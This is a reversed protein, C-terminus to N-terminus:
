VARVGQPTEILFSAHGLFSIRLGGPPGDPATGALMVHPVNWAIPACGALALRPVVLALVGVLFHRVRM